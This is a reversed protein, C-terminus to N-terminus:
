PGVKDEELERIGDGQDEPAFKKFEEALDLVEEFSRTIASQAACPM